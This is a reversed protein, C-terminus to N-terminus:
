KRIYPQVVSFLQGRNKINFKRYINQIHNAVTNVSIFKKCSIENNSCGSLMMEIIERERKSINFQKLYYEASQGDGAIPTHSLYVITFFVSLINISFFYVPLAISINNNIIDFAVLPTILGSIIIFLKMIKKLKEDAVNKLNRISVSFSYLAIIVFLTNAAIYFYYFDFGLIIWLIFVFVVAISVISFFIRKFISLRVLFLHNIFVPITYLLFSLSLAYLAYLCVYVSNSVSFSFNDLYFKSLFYLLELFISILVLSFYKYAKIRQKRYLLISSSISVIGTPFSILYIILLFNIM